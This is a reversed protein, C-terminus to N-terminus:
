HCVRRIVRLITEPQFPKVMWGTMGTKRGLQRKAQDNETTLAIIPVHALCPKARVAEALEFGNMVPMNIDTIILDVPYSQLQELAKQGNDAEVVEFGHHLLVAQLLQRISASDDVALVTTM